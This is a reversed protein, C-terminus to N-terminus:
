SEVRMGPGQLRPTGIGLAWRLAVCAASQAGGSWQLASHVAARGACAAGVGATAGRDTAASHDGADAARSENGGSSSSSSSGLRRPTDPQEQRRVSQESRIFDARPARSSGRREHM